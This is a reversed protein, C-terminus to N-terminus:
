ILLEPNTLQIQVLRVRGPRIVEQDTARQIVRHVPFEGLLDDGLKRPGRPDTLQVPQPQLPHHPEPDVLPDALEEGDAAAMAAYENGDLVIDSHAIAIPENDVYVVRAEPDAAQAIEHVHGV